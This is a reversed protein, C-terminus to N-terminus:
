LGIMPPYRCIEEERCGQYMVVEHDHDDSKHRWSIAFTGYDAAAFALPEYDAHESFSCLRIYQKNTISHLGYHLLYVMGKPGYQETERVFPHESDPDNEDMGATFRYLAFVGNIDDIPPATKLVEAAGFHGWPLKMQARLLVPNPSSGNVAFIYIDPSGKFVLAIKNEHGFPAISSAQVDIVENELGFVKCSAHLQAGYLQQRSRAVLLRYLEATEREELDQNLGPTRYLHHLVVARCTSALEYLIRCSHAVELYDPTDVHKLVLQILEPPFKLLM